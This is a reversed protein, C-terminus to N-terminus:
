RSVFSFGTGLPIDLEPAFQIPKSIKVIGDAEANYLFREPHLVLVPPLVEVLVQQNAARAGSPGLQVTQPHSIRALADEITCV